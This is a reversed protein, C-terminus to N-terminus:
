FYLKSVLKIQILNHQLLIIERPIRNFWLRRSKKILSKRQNIKGIGILSFKRSSMESCLIWSILWILPVKVSNWSLRIVSTM